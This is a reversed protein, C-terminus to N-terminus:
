IAAINRKLGSYKTRKVASKAFLTDFEEQTLNEWEHKTKLLLEEKPQFRNEKNPEAFRINWPCVDQCIDCGFMRNAYNGKMNEPANGKLEITLYSICKRSDVMYPKTIAQTPCSDICRTCTGCSDTAPTDYELEINLMLEALFYFSGKNKIIINSNKGLWGIGSKQAWTKEPVPASDVFGRGEVNSNQQKAFTLLENLKDKIVNHYDEGFAYKSIIPANPMQTKNSYYNYALSVISKVGSALLEPNFRMEFHNKMYEMEGSYGSDIWLKFQESEQKLYEQKSVGCASFGLDLAKSKIHQTLSM